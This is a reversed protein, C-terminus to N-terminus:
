NNPVKRKKIKRKGDSKSVSVELKSMRCEIKEFYFM